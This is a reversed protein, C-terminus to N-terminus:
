RIAGIKRLHGLAETRHYTTAKDWSRVIPNSRATKPRSPTITDSPPTAVHADDHNDNDAFRSTSTKPSVTSARREISPLSLGARVKIIYRPTVGAIVALENNSKTPHAKLADEVLGRKIGWGNRGVRQNSRTPLKGVQEKHLAAVTHHSVGTAEAIARDSRNPNKALEEAIHMRKEENTLPATRSRRHQNLSRVRARMAEETTCENTIDYIKPEINLQQCIAYRHKGDVIEGRWAVIPQVQGNAQMDLYLASREAPTLDAYDDAIPHVKM